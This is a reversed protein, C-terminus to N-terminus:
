GKENWVVRKKKQSIQNSLDIQIEIYLISAHM